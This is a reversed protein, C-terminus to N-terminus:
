LIGVLYEIRLSSMCLSACVGGAYAANTRGFPCVIDGPNDRVVQANECIQFLGRNCAKCTGILKGSEDGAFLWNQPLM